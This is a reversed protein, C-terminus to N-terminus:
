GSGKGKRRRKTALPTEERPTPLPSSSPMGGGRSVHSAPKHPFLKKARGPENVESSEERASSGFAMRAKEGGPRDFPPEPVRTGVYALQERNREGDSLRQRQRDSRYEDVIADLEVGYDEAASIVGRCIAGGLVGGTALGKKYEERLLGTPNTRFPGAQGSARDLRSRIRAAENQGALIKDMSSTIPGESPPFPLSQLSASRISAELQEKTRERKATISTKAQEYKSWAQRAKEADSYVDSDKLDRYFQQLTSEERDASQWSNRAETPASDRIQEYSTPQERPSASAESPQIDTM